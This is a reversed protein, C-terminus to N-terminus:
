QRIFFMTSLRNFLTEFDPIMSWFLDVAGSPHTCCSLTQMGNGGCREKNVSNGFRYHNKKGNHFLSVSNSSSSRM